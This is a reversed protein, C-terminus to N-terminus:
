FGYDTGWNPDAGVNEGGGLVPGQLQGYNTADNGYGDAGRYANAPPLMSRTPAHHETPVYSVHFKTVNGPPVKAALIRGPEDPVSVHLTTGPPTGQPVKVSLLKERGSKAPQTSSTNQPPPVTQRSHTPPLPRPIGQPTYAVHFTSVNPPVQAAVTRNEGPIEVFITSGPPMGPPVQVQVLKQEQPQYRGQDYQQAGQDRQQNSRTSRNQQHRQMLKQHLTQSTNRRQARNPSSSRTRHLDTDPVPTIFDEFSQVLSVGKKRSRPSPDLDSSAPPMGADPDRGGRSDDGEQRSEVQTVSAEVPSGEVRKSSSSQHMHMNEPSPKSGQKMRPDPTPVLFRELKEGLSPTKGGEVPKSPLTVNTEPPFRVLFTQGVELGKPVITDVTRTGDPSRVEIKQGPTVGSPLTVAFNLELIVTLSLDYQIVFASLDYGRRETFIPLSHVADSQRV